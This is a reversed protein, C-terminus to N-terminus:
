LEIEKVVTIDEKLNKIEGKKVNCYRHKVLKKVLVSMLQTPALGTINKKKKTLKKKLVEVIEDRKLIRRFVRKVITQNVQLSWSADINSLAVGSLQSCPIPSESRCSELDTTNGHDDDEDLEDLIDTDGGGSEASSTSGTFVM